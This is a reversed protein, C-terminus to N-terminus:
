ITLILQTSAQLFGQIRLKDQSQKRILIHRYAYILSGEVSRQKLKPYSYLILILKKLIQQSKWLVNFSVVVFM